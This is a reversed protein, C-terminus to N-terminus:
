VDLRGPSLGDFRAWDNDGLSAAFWDGIIPALTAGNKYLGACLFLGPHVSSPGVIPLGDATRARLGARADLFEIESQLRLNRRLEEGLRLIGDLTSVRPAAGEQTAGVMTTGDMRPIVDLEGVYLAQRVM